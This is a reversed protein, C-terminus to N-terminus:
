VSWDKAKTGAVSFMKKSFERDKVSFVYDPKHDSYKVTLWCNKPIQSFPSEATDLALVLGTHNAAYHSWM